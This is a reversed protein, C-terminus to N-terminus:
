EEITTLGALAQYMVTRPRSNIGITRSFMRRSKQATLRFDFDKMIGNIARRGDAINM